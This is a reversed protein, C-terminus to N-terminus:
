GDQCGIPSAITPVVEALNLVEEVEKVIKLRKGILTDGCRVTVSMGLGLADGIQGCVQDDMYITLNRLQNATNVLLSHM